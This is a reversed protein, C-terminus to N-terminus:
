FSSVLFRTSIGNSVMRKLSLRSQIMRLYYSTKFILSLADFVRLNQGLSDFGAGGREVKTTPWHSAGGGGKGGVFDELINDIGQEL